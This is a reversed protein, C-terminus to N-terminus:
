RGMQSKDYPVQAICIAKLVQKSQCTHFTTIAGTVPNVFMAENVAYAQGACSSLDDAICKNPIPKCASQEDSIDLLQSCWNM